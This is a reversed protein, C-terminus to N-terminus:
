LECYYKSNVTVKEVGEFDNIMSVFIYVAVAETKFLLVNTPLLWQEPSINM